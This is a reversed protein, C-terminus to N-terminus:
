LPVISNQDTVIGNCHAYYVAARTKRNLRHKGTVTIGRVLTGSVKVTGVPCTTGSASLIIIGGINRRVTSLLIGRAKRIGAHATRVPFFRYDPIRGLTTTSFICSINQVTISISAGGHIGKVCFGIGPGRLRRHVSSRGGRSHDFVHVRGVSSSLFHQLITGNFSNANKAVLLAGSGFM